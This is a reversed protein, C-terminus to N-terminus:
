KGKGIDKLPVMQKQGRKLASKEQMQVGKKAGAMGGVTAGLGAGGVGFMSGGVGGGVATGLTSLLPVAGLRVLNHAQIAAGPYTPDYKVIHGADHLDKVMQALEKDEMLINLKRNNRNLYNTVNSANWQGKNKSGEELIRNAFQARIEAIAADAQPRLEPPMEKLLKILHRQQDVDMREVTTAIKEFPVARNMPSQPDYDMIKAVGKPDDLLRAIKTRVARANKYVDEGAVMTVDNDINDKLRGIIGSRENNWNSNVYKRLNEAQDVTMPSVRGDADMLGNEKLHSQIGRRLSMFSDNVTFNSDTDLFKQMNSPNVAPQGGAVQKAQDYAQKMQTQLVAKFDDFPKTIATGRSYLAAEDLGLSGGTRDVIRQGFNELAAREGAFTDRYLQGVPADVKSTQFENSASFGDGSISSQRANELGVRSLIDKRANQEPLNVKGKPAYRVEPFPQMLSPAPMTATQVKQAPPLVPEGTRKAELQAQFDAYSVKPKAGMTPEIRTAAVVPPKATGLAGEVVDAAATTAQKLAPAAKVGAGALVTGMVNEVDQVPAGTKEAIWAAGKQFNKGIYDFLQRTVEGKYEPTETVGFTRGFPSEFPAAASTSIEKAQEPSKGFARAGAYTVPEIIGPAIGGLTVDALSAASRGFQTAADTKPASDKVKGVKRTDKEVVPAVVPSPRPPEAAATSPKAPAKGMIMDQVPDATEQEAGLGLSFFKQRKELPYNNFEEESNLVRRILAPDFGRREFESIAANVQEPRLNKFRYVDGKPAPAPAASPAASPAVPPAVPSASKPKGLILHSIDEM